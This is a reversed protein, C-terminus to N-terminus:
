AVRGPGDVAGTCSAGPEPADASKWFKQIFPELREDDPGELEVQANWASAVVPAPLDPYPSLIVYTSPLAARLTEVGAADVEDPDYTVWVAGHELSHVANENTQPESYVGCNLWAAFHNGGAPPNMGYDAEYDVPDPGVHVATLSTGFDQLGEIEIDDPNAKPISGVVIFSVVIAVVAVGGVIASIIGIRQNRRQRAMQKKMAAVKEARRADRQQKVTLSNDAPV